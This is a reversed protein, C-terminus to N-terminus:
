LVSNLFFFSDFRRWPAVFNHSEDVNFISIRRRIMVHLRPGMDRISIENAWFYKVNLGGAGFAGSSGNAARGDVGADDGDRLSCWREIAVDTSARKLKRGTCRRNSVTEPHTHREDNRIERSRYLALGM